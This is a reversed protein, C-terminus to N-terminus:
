EKTCSTGRQSSKKEVLISPYITRTASKNSSLNKASNRIFFRLRVPKYEKSIYPNHLSLTSENKQEHKQLIWFEKVEINYRIIM